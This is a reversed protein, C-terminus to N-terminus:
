NLVTPQTTMENTEVRREVAQEDCGPFKPCNICASWIKHPLEEKSIKVFGCKLFFDTAYTLAFVRRIGLMRADKMCAEVLLKGLGMGKHGEAVALSRVEGLDEWVIHLAACGIIEGSEVDRAVTFDHVHEYLDSLARPLLKHEAAESMILEYVKHMMGLTPEILEYKM